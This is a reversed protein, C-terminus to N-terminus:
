RGENAAARLQNSQEQQAKQMDRFTMTDGEFGMQERMRSAVEDGDPMASIDLDAAVLHTSHQTTFVNFIHAIEASMDIDAAVRAIAGSLYVMGKMYLFLEKPLKGGSEVLRRLIERMEVAQDQMTVDGPSRKMLEDINLEDAIREVDVDAPLGGLDRFHRLLAVGDQAASSFMLGLLARRKGEDFRGTIGFDFIAPRGGTGVFMNGAHLDGHFVGHIMAGELFSVMLTRFVPAPDIGAAALGGEDDVSIGELREMVLVRRTVLEPHPRPVVILRPEVTALVAAVDLMNQAELRFDLEEVITEAFMEVYAALNSFSAQPSRRAIIPAIWAMTAIDDAVLRQIGPRQVKVVVDQGDVLRARHVQAISAAALPVRDFSSFVSELPRGIDEEIVARVHAFSEPPVRDRCSKFEAVWPDPIMGEGSAVLQGLKIFTCGLREFTVRLQGALEAQANPDSMKRRNRAIWPVAAWALRAVVTVSRLPPIRRARVLAPVQLAAGQRLGDIGVRWTAADPDVVWPADDTFSGVAYDDPMSGGGDKL